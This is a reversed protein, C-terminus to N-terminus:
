KSELRADEHGAVIGPAANYTLTVVNDFYSANNISGAPYVAPDTKQNYHFHDGTLVFVGGADGVGTFVPVISTGAGSSTDSRLNVTLRVTVSSALSTTVDAGSCAFVKIQNPITSKVQFVNSVDADTNIDDAVNDDALPAQFALRLPALVNVTITAETHNGSGDTATCAVTNAGLSNGALPACTVTVAQCADIATPLTFSVPAGDCSGLVTRPGLSAPDFVPRLTDAVTVSTACSTVNGADDTAGFDVATTGLPYSAAGAPGTVAVGGCVDSATANPVDVTAAGNATCEATIPAACSIAPATTDAVTVESACTATNGSTDAATFGIPTTGIPFSRTGATGTIAVSSCLDSATANPVDVAAAHDGTCEATIPAPCSLIPRTTDVITVSTACAATHGVGDAAGFDLATTGLQFSATGAPGTVTVGGCLDSAIANPVNVPASTNATCEATIPAACAIVPALTDNVLVNTTCSATNGSDDAASFTLTNSGLPYSATGAPGTITVRSCLDSGTANPVDVTAAGAVCEATQSAPCSIAPAITDQITVLGTCSGTLGGRDTCTLTVLTAGIGFVPGPRQSCAVLDGDPDFSGNEVSASASCTNNAVIVINKCVAVPPRPTRTWNMTAVETLGAQGNSKVFSGQIKDQGVGGAGTYTFAAQGSADTTIATSPLSANPGSTIRFTVARNALPTGAANVLTATITQPRGQEGFAILPSLTIREDTIPVGGRVGFIHRGAVTSFHSTRALGTTANSDLFGSRVQSGPFQFFLAPNGNGASFGAGASTGGLGGIGGSADGTEWLIQDHNMVIDFNGTGTDTRDVLLLQFSNLKDAHSSFYGVRGWNVCFAPRGDFLIPANSFQVVGSSTNRTDVDALFPAIIPPTQANITFPTFTSLAANFTVNGNNNIFLSSQTTGFFNISFPLTIRATSSDDNAALTRALCGADQVISSALVPTKPDLPPDESGTPAEVLALKALEYETSDAAPGAPATPEAPQDPADPESADVSLEEGTYEGEALDHRSVGCGSILACLGLTLVGNRNLVGTLM